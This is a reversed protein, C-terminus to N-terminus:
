ILAKKKRKQKNQTISMYHVSFVKIILTLSVKLFTKSKKIRLKNGFVLNLTKLVMNFYKLHQSNM